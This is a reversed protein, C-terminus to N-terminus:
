TVILDFELPLTKLLRAMTAKSSTVDLYGDKNIDIHQQGVAVCGLLQYHYNANHILIMDRKPVGTIHFHNGYKSTSRRVVRYRGTPICSVKRNNNNWGLELTKCEVKGKFLLEGLTQKDDGKFRNLYVIEIM